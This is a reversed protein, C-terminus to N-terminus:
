TPYGKLLQRDFLLLNPFHLFRKSKTNVTRFSRPLLDVQKDSSIM